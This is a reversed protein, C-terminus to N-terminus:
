NAKRVKEGNATIENQESTAIAILVVFILANVLIHLGFDVFSHILVGFIGISAGFCVPQRALDSTRLNKVIRIAIIVGFGLFFAFGVIGGAALLELYDNHAQELTYTGNTLDYRPVAHAFAGFGNGLFPRERIMDLTSQWIINRNMKSGDNVTIEESIKEVRTVLYDGGVFGIAAWVLIVILCSLGIAMAVRGILPKTLYGFIRSDSLRDSRGGDRTLIHVFVAYSTLAALSILGGRSSAAIIGSVLIGSVIWGAFKVRRPYDGKILMGLLLGFSMEMLVAFHNRNQFQGFGQEPQEFGALIGPPLGPFWHRLIGFLATGAGIILVLAVLANVRGPSNSYKSLIEFTIVLGGFVVLFVQTDYPDASIAFIQFIQFTALILVGALPFLLVPRALTFAGTRLADFVRFAGCVSILSIFLSKRWIDITGFSLAAFFIVSLTGYFATRGFYSITPRTNTEQEASSNPLNPSEAEIVYM